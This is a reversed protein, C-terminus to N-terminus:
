RYTLKILNLKCRLHYMTHLTFKLKLEEPRVSATFSFVQIIILLLSSKLQMSPAPTKPYHKYYNNGYKFYHSLQITSSEKIQLFFITIDTFHSANRM